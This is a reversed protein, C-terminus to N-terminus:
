QELRHQVSLTTITAATTQLQVGGTTATKNNNSRQRNQEVGRKGVGRVGVGLSIVCAFCYCLVVFMQVCRFSRIHMAARDRPYRWYARVRPPPPARLPHLQIYTM